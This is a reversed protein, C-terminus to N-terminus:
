TALFIRPLIRQLLLVMPYKAFRTVTYQAQDCSRFLKIWIRSSSRYNWKKVLMNYVFMSRVSM